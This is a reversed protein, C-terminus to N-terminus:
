WINLLSGNVIHCDGLRNLFKPQNQRYILKNPWFNATASPFGFVFIRHKLIQYLWEIALSAFINFIFIISNYRTQVKFCCDLAWVHNPVRKQSLYLRILGFFSGIFMLVFIIMKSNTFTDSLSPIIFMCQILFFSDLIVIYNCFILRFYM